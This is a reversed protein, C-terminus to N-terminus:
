GVSVRVLLENRRTKLSYLPGFTNIRFEREDVCSLGNTALADVLRARYFEATEPTANGEFSVAALLEGGTAVVRVDGEANPEAISERARRGLLALEMTKGGEFYRTTLPQTPPYMAGEANGGEMYEMLTALGRERNEYTTAAVYYAGYVRLEYSDGSGANVVDYPVDYDGSARSSSSTSSDDDDGRKASSRFARARHSPRARMARTRERTTTTTTTMTTTTMTTSLPSAARVTTV